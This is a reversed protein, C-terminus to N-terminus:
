IRKLMWRMVVHVSVWLISSGVAERTSSADGATMSTENADHEYSTESDRWWRMCMGLGQVLINRERWCWLGLDVNELSPLVLVVWRSPDDGLTDLKHGVYVVVEVTGRFRQTCRGEGKERGRRHTVSLTVGKATLGHQDSLQGSPCAGPIQYLEAKLVPRIRVLPALSEYHPLDVACNSHSPGPVM